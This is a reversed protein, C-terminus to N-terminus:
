LKDFAELLDDESMKGEAPAPSSAPSPTTQVEPLPEAVQIPTPKVDAVPVTQTPTVVKSQEYIVPTPIQQVTPAAPVIFPNQQIPQAIPQVPQASGVVGVYPNHTYVADKAKVTLTNGLINVERNRKISSLPVVNPLLGINRVSLNAGHVPYLSADTFYASLNQQVLSNRLVDKCFSNRMRPKIHRLMFCTKVDSDPVTFRTHVNLKGNLDFPVIEDIYYFVPNGNAYNVIANQLMTTIPYGADCLAVLDADFRKYMRIEVVM